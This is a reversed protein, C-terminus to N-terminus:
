ATEPLAEQLPKGRKKAAQALLVNTADEDLGLGALLRQLKELPTLSRKSPATNIAERLDIEDQNFAPENESGEKPEVAMANAKSTQLYNLGTQFVYVFQGEDPVLHQAAALSKVTYRIMVNENWQQWGDAELKKWNLQDKVEAKAVIDVIEGKENYKVYARYTTKDTTLDSSDIVASAAVTEPTSVAIDGM